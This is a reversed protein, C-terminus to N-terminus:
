YNYFKEYASLIELNKKKKKLVFDLIANTAM